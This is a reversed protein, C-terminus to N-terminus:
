DGRPKSGSVFGLFGSRTSGSAVQAFGMESLLPPLSWASTEMMAPGVLLSTLHGLFHNSPKVFDAILVRGGPKLVRLMEAFAARKLEDPLHHMALRSIVADFTGDEFPLKEALGVDFIVGTGAQAAKKRAVEIMEPSADIGHVKGTPGTYNRATLTLNGSGCAVDLVSEGAQIKALEVVMRTGRANVGMGM